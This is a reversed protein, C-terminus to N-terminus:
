ASKQLTNKQYEVLINQKTIKKKSLITETSLCAVDEICKLLHEAIANAMLPPVANGIQNYQCLYSEDTRGERGLLKKSVVTPKGLFVYTDPFSQIRAGERATFNRNKHPHVFNAYFSAAITHCPKHPFMRRNNQDYVKDSMETSNRKLPKLHDPVDSTSQGWVMSAFREVLRSSHNMAKHNHVQSSKGRLTKQYQNEPPKTYPQVESGQRAEIEPLDSIAEWLTPCKPMGVRLFDSQEGIVHTKPPFPDSIEKKTAIVVLRKRIQPVGYDTAELIKYKVFYGIKKLENVIIDVVLEGSETKAKILNPVNEMIMVEPDLLRGVRIFEEFLSNRPDKPDGNNKNCISFGQCPPGGLVVNPRDNGFHFLIEEDTLSTIDSQIVKAEPHNYRFTDCAWSDIEIAGVLDAGALQFGLSFGGAGAFTDLVRFKM